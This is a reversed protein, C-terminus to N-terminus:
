CNLVGRLRVDKNRLDVGHELVAKLNTLYFNWGTKCGLHWYSKGEDTVPINYQHLTVLSGNGDKELTVKVIMDNSGNGNFTFEFLDKGNAQLITGNEVTDDDWGFWLFCYHDGQKVYDTGLLIEEGSKYECKRLFWSEMCNRTAFAAYLTDSDADIRIKQDFIEWNM